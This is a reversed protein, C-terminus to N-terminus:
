RQPLYKLPDLPKGQSRVEFHLKVQDTDTNGMEAIKQGKAVMQGEKVLLTQNHGYVSVYANNHKVIVLKGYGRLFNAIIVKGDAAAIVPDGAKGAIDIGKNGGESFTGITKGNAPWIWVIENGSAAPEAPKAEPKAETKAVPVVPEAPKPQGQNQALALAQDSYPEKGAKPERKLAETNSGLPRMEVGPEAGIPKAVVVESVVPSTSAVSSTAAAPPKVKLVKGVTIRNPNDIGNMAILDRHDMGHDRAISYLTDGAKVTYTDQAASAQGGREALPAPSKSACGALALLATVVAVLGLKAFNRNNKM